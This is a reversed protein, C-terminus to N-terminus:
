KEERVGPLHTFENLACAGNLGSVDGGYFVLSRLCHKKPTGAIWMDGIKERARAFEQEAYGKLLYRDQVVAQWVPHALVQGQTLSSSIALGGARALEERTLEPNHARLNEYQESSILLAGHELSSNPNINRLLVSNQIILINGDPSYAIADGSHYGYKLDLKGELRGQMIESISASRLGQEILLPMQQTPAGEFIQYQLSKTIVQSEKPELVEEKPGEIYPDGIRHGFIRKDLPM